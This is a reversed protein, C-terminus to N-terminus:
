EGSGLNYADYKWASPADSPHGTTASVGGSQITQFDTYPPMYEMGQQSEDGYIKDNYGSAAVFSDLRTPPLSTKGENQLQINGPARYSGTIPASSAAGSAGPVHGQYSSAGELDPGNPAGAGQTNTFVGQEPSGLCEHGPSDQKQYDQNQEYTRGSSNGMNGTDSGVDGWAQAFGPTSLTLTATFAILLSKFM